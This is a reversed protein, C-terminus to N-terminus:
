MIDRRTEKTKYWGMDKVMKRELLSQLDVHVMGVYLTSGCESQQLPLKM